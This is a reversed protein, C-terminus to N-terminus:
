STKAIRSLIGVVLSSCSVKAKATVFLTATRLKAGFAGFLDLQFQFSAFGFRTGFM